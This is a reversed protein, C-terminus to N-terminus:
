EIHAWTRRTVIMSVNAQCIKFDHAIKRQRDGTAARRRILRIDDDTLHTLYHWDGLMLRGHRRQDENNEKSTAWRLNGACNNAPDGDWHAVEHKPSPADGHFARCVLIHVHQTTPGLGDRYLNLKLHGKNKPCAKLIGPKRARPIAVDRRVRGHDSVSYDPFDVIQRWIEM